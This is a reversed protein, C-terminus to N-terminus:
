LMKLTRFNLRYYLSIFLSSFDALSFARHASLASALLIPLWDASLPYIPWLAAFIIFRPLDISDRKCVAMSSFDFNSFFM